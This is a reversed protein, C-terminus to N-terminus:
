VVAMVREENEAFKLKILDSYTHVCELAVRRERLPWNSSDEDTAPLSM